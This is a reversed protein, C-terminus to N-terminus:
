SWDSERFSDLLITFYAVGSECKITRRNITSIERVINSYFCVGVLTIAKWAIFRKFSEKLDELLTM